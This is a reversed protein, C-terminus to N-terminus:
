KGRLSIKQLLTEMAKQIRSDLRTNENDMKLGGEIGFSGNNKAIHFRSARLCCEDSLFVM